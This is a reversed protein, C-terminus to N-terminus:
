QIVFQPFYIKRLAGNPVMASLTDQLEARLGDRLRAEAVQEVTKSGFLRLITDRLEADRSKFQALTAEDKAELAVTMLLFRSGNSGAPNLVLNEIAYIPHPEASDHGGEDHASDAAGHEGHSAAAHAASPSAPALRPGLVFLGAGAGLAAGAVISGITLFLASGKKSPADATAPESQQENSDAM